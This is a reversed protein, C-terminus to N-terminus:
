NDILLQMLKRPQWTDYEQPPMENRYTRARDYTIAEMALRLELAAYKLRADDGSELESRARNLAKRAEARFDVM